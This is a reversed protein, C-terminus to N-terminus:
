LRGSRSLRVQDDPSSCLPGSRLVVALPGDAVLVPDGVLRLGIGSVDRIGALDRQLEVRGPRGPQRFSHHEAVRLRAVAMPPASWDNWMSSRCRSGRRSAATGCRLIPSPATRSTARPFTRSGEHRRGTAAQGVEDLGLPDAVHEHHGSEEHEQERYGTDCIGVGRTQAVDEVPGRRDCFLHEDRAEPHEFAVERLEVPHGLRGAGYARQHGLVVVGVPRSAM